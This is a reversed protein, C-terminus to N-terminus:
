PNKEGNLFAGLFAELRRKEREYGQRYGAEYAHRLMQEHLKRHAAGCWLMPQGSFRSCLSCDCVPKMEVRIGTQEM